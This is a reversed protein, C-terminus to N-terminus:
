KLKVAWGASYQLIRLVDHVDVREDMNVDANSINAGETDASVKQAIQQLLIVGEALDVSGNKDIDGSIMIGSVKVYECVESSSRGVSDTVVIVFRVEGSAEPTCSFTGSNRGDFSGYAIESSGTGGDAHLYWGVGVSEYEGSGGSITFSATLTEGVNVEDKDYEVAIIIPLSDDSGSVKVYECVESSSRGVSDTVVIVFRVEGSAEPTCSFTGSNRGDFSGYAIESSGTGGDAHLYWGVGVSEYEGSGGSITFSATLTEGVNVEDKDYEVICVIEETDALASSCGLMLILVIISISIRMGWGPIVDALSKLKSSISKNM